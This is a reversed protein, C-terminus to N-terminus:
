NNSVLTGDMTLNASDQGISDLWIGGGQNFALNGTIVTGATILIKGTGNSFVGGGADNASNNSITSSNLSLTWSADAFDWMAIGGGDDNAFNGTVVMSSLTLNVNGQDEIGGGGGLNFEAVPTMGGTITFGQAAQPGGFIVTFNAPISADAPNIDFVRDLHNGDVTVAQGSTNVITLSSGPPSASNPIIDFDGTANKDEGSGNLTIKYTGPITLNITNNGPTANAAQIASRLTVTGSPPNLIDALSNVNFVAPALRDELLELDCYRSCLRARIAGHQGQKSERPFLHRLIRFLARSM